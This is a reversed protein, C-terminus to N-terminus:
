VDLAGQETMEDWPVGSIEQIDRGEENTKAWYGRWPLGKGSRERDIRDPWGHEVRSGSFPLLKLSQVPFSKDPPTLSMRIEGWRLWLSSGFPALDRVGGQAKPAHHEIVLAFGYRTRLDDLIEQMEAAAQEDTEGHNRRFAKYLPGLSVLEPRHQRLVEEFQRRDSRKRIDVGGPRHWVAGRGETRREWNEGQRALKDIWDHLHDEPNELDVLLTRVPKIPKAEGMFPHIGAAACFAIQRLLITKGSGEPGVFMSRWDRRLLGTIIWPSRESEPKALLEEFTMFGDPTGTPIHADISKLDAVLSDVVEDPDKATDKFADVADLAIALGARAVSHRRVIPAYREVGSTGSVTPADAHACLLAAQLPKDYGQLRAQDDVTVVDAKRGVKDLAVMASFAMAWQPSYFDGPTLWEAAWRIAATNNLCAGIVASEADSDHPPPIYPM